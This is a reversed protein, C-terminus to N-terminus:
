KDRLIYYNLHRLKVMDIGAYPTIGTISRAIEIDINAFIETM